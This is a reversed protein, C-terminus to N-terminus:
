GFPQIYDSPYTPQTISKQLLSFVMWVIFLILLFSVVLKTNSSNRFIQQVGWAIILVPWLKWIAGWVEWPIVGFNNLLLVVGVFILLIAPVSFTTRDKKM